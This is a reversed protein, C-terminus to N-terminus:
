RVRECTDTCIETAYIMSDHEKVHLLVTTSAVRHLRTMVGSDYEKEYVTEGSCFTYNYIHAIFYGLPGLM